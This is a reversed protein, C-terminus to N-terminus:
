KSKRKARGDPDHLRKETHNCSESDCALSREQVGAFAFQPHPKSSTVKLRGVSCIPCFEGKKLGDIEDQLRRITTDKDQLSLAADSLAIKVDALGGSLEAIKLKYTAADMSRDIDRLSKAVTIAQGIASFAAPIDM